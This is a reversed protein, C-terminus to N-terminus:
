HGLRAADDVEARGRAEHGVVRVQEGHALREHDHAGLEHRQDGLQAVEAARLAGHRHEAERV